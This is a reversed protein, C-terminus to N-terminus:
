MKYFKRIRVFAISARIASLQAKTHFHICIGSSGSEKMSCSFPWTLEIEGYVM